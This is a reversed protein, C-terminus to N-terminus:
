FESSKSCLFPPTPGQTPALARTPIVTFPLPLVILGWALCGRCGSVQGPFALGCFM